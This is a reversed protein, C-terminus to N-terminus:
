FRPAGADEFMAAGGGEHVGGRCSAAVDVNRQRPLNQSRLGRGVLSRVHRAFFPSGAHVCWVGLMSCLKKRSVGM